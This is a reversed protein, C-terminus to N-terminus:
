LSVKKCYAGLSDTTKSIEVLANQGSDNAGDGAEIAAIFKDWAQIWPGLVALVARNWQSELLQDASGIYKTSEPRGSVPAGGSSFVRRCM